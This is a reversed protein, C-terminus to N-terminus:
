AIEFDKYFNEGSSRIKGSLNNDIWDIWDENFTDVPCWSTSLLEKNSTLTRKRSQNIQDQNKLKTIYPNTNPCFDNKMTKKMLTGLKEPSVYTNRSVMNCDDSMDPIFTPDSVSPLAADM